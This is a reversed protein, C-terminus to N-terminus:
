REFFNDKALEEGEAQMEELKYQEYEEQSMHSAGCECNCGEKRCNSTCEHECENKYKMNIKM